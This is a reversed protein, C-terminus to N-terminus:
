LIICMKGNKIMDVHKSFGRGKPRPARQACSTQPRPCVETCFIGNLFFKRASFNVQIELHEFVSTKSVDLDRLAGVNRHGEFVSTKSSDLM